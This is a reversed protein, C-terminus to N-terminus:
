LKILLSGWTLGGGFGVLLILDGEKMLKKQKGENLAIPISGASTNGYEGLNLYYQERRSDPVQELAYEILRSNAQHPIIFDVDKYTYGTGALAEDMAKGIIRKSFKFVERGDMELASNIETDAFPTHLSLGGLTLIGKSDGKAGLYSKIIGPTDSAEIVVAGAGDGFLISTSRDNFDIGKSLVEGGIILARKIFGNEVMQNGVVLGYVFGSCAASLDFAFANEAGIAEAVLCATAPLYYDPTMTAFIVADITLPDIGADSIAAKAAKIGLESTNEGTSFYRSGIGTREKIWEDSTELREEFFSNYVRNDPVYHGTGIIKGYIKSM